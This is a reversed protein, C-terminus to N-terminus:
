AKKKFTIFLKSGKVEKTMSSEIVSEPLNIQTSFYKKLAEVQKPTGEKQVKSHEKKSSVYLVHSEVTVKITQQNFLPLDIEYILHEKTDNVSVRFASEQNLDVYMPRSVELGWSKFREDMKRQLNLHLSQLKKYMATISHKLGGEEKKVDKGSSDAVANFALLACFVFLLSKQM